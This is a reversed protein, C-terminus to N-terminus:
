LALMKVDWYEYQREESSIPHVTKGKGLVEFSLFVKEM